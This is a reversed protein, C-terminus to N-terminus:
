ARKVNKYYLVIAVNSNALLPYNMVCEGDLYLDNFSVGTMGTQFQQPSILPTVVRQRANGSADKCNIVFQQSAQANNGMARIEMSKVKVPQTQLQRNFFELNSPIGIGSAAGQPTGRSNFLIATKTTGTPNNFNFVITKDGSFSSKEEEKGWGKVIKRGLVFGAVVVAYGVLVKLLNNQNKM